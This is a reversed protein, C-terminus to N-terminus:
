RAQWDMLWGGPPVTSSAQTLYEPRVLHQFEFVDADGATGRFLLQNASTSITDEWVEDVKGEFLEIENCVCHKLM